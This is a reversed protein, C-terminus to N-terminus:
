VGGKKCPIQRGSGQREAQPSTSTLVRELDAMFGSNGLEDLLFKRFAKFQFESMAMQAGTLIRNKRAELLHQLEDLFNM